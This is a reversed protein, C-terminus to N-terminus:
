KMLALAQPAVNSSERRACSQSADPADFTEFMPLRFSRKVYLYVSRRTYDAPDSSVPWQSPDRMGEREEATLPTAIPPGGKKLNLTGCTALAADRLAEAELRQRNMKWFYQHEADIKANAAHPGSSLRYASSLMILR